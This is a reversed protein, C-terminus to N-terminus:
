MKVHTLLFVDKICWSHGKLSVTTLFGLSFRPVERLRELFRAYVAWLSSLSVQYGSTALSLGPPGCAARHVAEKPRINM